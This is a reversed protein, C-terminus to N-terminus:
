VFTRSSLCRALSANLRAQSPYQVIEVLHENNKSKRRCLHGIFKRKFITIKLRMLFFRTDGDGSCKTSITCYYICTSGCLQLIPTLRLMLPLPWVPADATSSPDMSVCVVGYPLTTYSSLHKDSLGRGDIEADSRRLARAPGVLDKLGEVRATPGM